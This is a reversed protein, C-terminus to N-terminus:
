YKQRIQAQLRLHSLQADGQLNYFLYLLSLISIDVIINTYIVKKDTTLLIKIEVATTWYCLIM